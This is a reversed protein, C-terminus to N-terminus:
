LKLKFKINGLPGAPPVPQKTNLAPAAEVWGGAAGVADEPPAPPQMPAPAEQLPAAPAADVAVHGNAPTHQPSPALAGADAATPAELM